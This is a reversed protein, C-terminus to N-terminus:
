KGTRSNTHWQVSTGRGSILALVTICALGMCWRAYWPLLRAAAIASRHEPSALDTLGRSRARGDMWYLLVGAIAAVGACLQSGRALGEGALVAATAVSGLLAATGYFARLVGPAGWAPRRTDVQIMVSTFVGALGM